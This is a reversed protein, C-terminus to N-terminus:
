PSCLMDPSTMCLAPYANRTWPELKKKPKKVQLGRCRLNLPRMGKPMCEKRHPCDPLHIAPQQCFRSASDVQECTFRNRDEKTKPSAELVSSRQQSNPQPPRIQYPRETVQPLPAVSRAFAGHRACSSQCRPGSSLAHTHTHTHSHTVTHSQTHSHTVTHSQTHCHTVTHSQTHSHTHSHTHTHTHTHTKRRAHLTCLSASEHPCCEKGPSPELARPRM